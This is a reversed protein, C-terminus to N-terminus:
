ISEGQREEMIFAQRVPCHLMYTAVPNTTTTPTNQEQLVGFQKILPQMCRLATKKGRKRGGDTKKILFTKLQWYFCLANKYMCCKCTFQLAEYQREPSDSFHQAQLRLIALGIDLTITSCTIQNLYQFCPCLSHLSFAVSSPNCYYLPM